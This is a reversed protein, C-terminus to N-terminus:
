GAEPKPYDIGPIPVIPRSYPRFHWRAGCTDCFGRRESPVYVTALSRCIPCIAEHRPDYPILASHKM